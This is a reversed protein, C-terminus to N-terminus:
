RRAGGAVRAAPAGAPPRRGPGPQGAVAGGPDVGRRDVRGLAGGKVFGWAVVREVPMALEDALHEVRAPVLATLAEDRDPEPNVLLAMLGGARAVPEYPLPGSDGFWALYGDFGRAQGVLDPLAPDPTATALRRMVAVAASTAEEDRTPVLDRLRDGPEARELLM